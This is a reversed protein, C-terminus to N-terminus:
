SFYSDLHIILKLIPEFPYLKSYVGEVIAFKFYFFDILM